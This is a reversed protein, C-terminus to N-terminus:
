PGEVVRRLTREGMAVFRPTDSLGIDLLTVGFLVAWGRARVLTAASCSGYADLARQRAEASGLLMWVSALDTAPDGAAMDGWDVVASFAGAEVLVNQAHPDGHIWTPMGDIPAALARDWIAHVVGDVLDTKGSLHEIRATFADIRDALPGGRVPNRPAGAPAPVHLARLFEGWREGQDDSPPDLDAPTGPLWPLVSWAWPFRENARGIRVPAPIPLPLRGALEPLWRQETELLRAAIARRPLRVSLRDGLRFMLNDWGSAALRIPLEALDPHQEALLARVGDADISVEAAPTGPRMTTM